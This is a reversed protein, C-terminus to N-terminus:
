SLSPHVKLELVQSSKEFFQSLMEHFCGSSNIPMIEQIITVYSISHSVTEFVFTAQVLSLASIDMSVSTVQENQGELLFVQYMRKKKELVDKSFVSIEEGTNM